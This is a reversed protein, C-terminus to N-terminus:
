VGVCMVGWRVGGAGGRVEQVQQLDSGWPGGMQMLPVQMLGMELLQKAHEARSSANVLVELAVAMPELRSGSGCQAVFTAVTPGQGPEQQQQQPAPQLMM